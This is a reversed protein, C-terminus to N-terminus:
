PYALRGHRPDAVFSCYSINSFMGFILTLLDINPFDYDKDPLYVVM